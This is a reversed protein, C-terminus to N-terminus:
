NSHYIPCNPGITKFNYSKKSNKLFRYPIILYNSTLYEGDFYVIAGYYNDDDYYGIHGKREGEVVEVPGHKLTGFKRMEIENYPIRKKILLRIQYKKISPPIM